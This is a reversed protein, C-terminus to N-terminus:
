EAIEASQPTELALEAVVEALTEVFPEMISAAGLTVRIFDKLAPDNFPGKVLYGRTKLGDVIQEPSLDVPTKLLQFNTPCSRVEFGLDLARANLVDRGLEIERRASESIEPHDLMYCGLKVSLASVEHSGRVKNFGEILHPQGVAFGLRLGPLGHAKSFSRIVILNDYEKVLGIVTEPYFPYYAEDVLCLSGAAQAAAIIRRMNDPPLAAGSPQDPNALAVIRIDGDILELFREVDLELGNKYPLTIAEGQFIKTYVSYMAYTPEPMLVRKGPQMFAQFTRRIAGDSGATVSIHDHSLGTAKSLRQYLPTLDPYFAFDEPRLTSLMSGLIEPLIPSVRENRDLCVFASRDAILESDRIISELHPNPRTM